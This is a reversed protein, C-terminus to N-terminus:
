EENADEDGAAALCPLTLTFVSGHPQAPEYFFEGGLANAYAQTLALGLGYGGASRAFDARFFRETIRARLEPSIGPGDDSVAVACQGEAVRVGIRIKAGPPSFKIANDVLNQLAQRFLLPDTSAHCEVVSQEIHQGRDEALIGLEAVCEAVVLDIRVRSRHVAQTGGSARALQLLREVLLQLRQTEELMSGIVERYEEVTRGRQLAVEGVSRLTTLPTRLEHSADAAFRDLTAFSAELRTLTNNFVGALRGLEDHPNAVSLRRSLDEATILETENVMDHLPRLWLRTLLYGGLVLLAVVVPLSVAIILLLAALADANPKHVRMVRVMWDANPTGPISLPVSLARLRLDAAINFVSLTERSPVPSYPMQELRAEDLPWLRLVLQGDRDWVEFWPDGWAWPAAKESASGDWLWAGGSARSLRAQVTQLDVRLQIDLPQAMRREVFKYIVVSFTTLLVIGGLAYWAALRFRLSRRQWWHKM